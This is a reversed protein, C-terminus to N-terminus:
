VTQLFWADEGEVAQRVEAVARFSEACQSVAVQKAQKGSAFVLVGFAKSLKARLPFVLLLKFLPVPPEPKGQIARKRNGEQTAGHRKPESRGKWDANMQALRRCFFTELEEAEETGRRKL